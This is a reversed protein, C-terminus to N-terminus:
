ETTDSEGHSEGPLFVPTPQQKRKWPCRGLGPISGVQWTRGLGRGVRASQMSWSKPSLHQISSPIFSAAFRHTPPWSTQSCGLLRDPPHGQLLRLAPPPLPLLLPSLPPHSGSSTWLKLRCRVKELGSLYLSRRTGWSMALFSIPPLM